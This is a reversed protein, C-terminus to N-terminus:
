HGSILRGTHPNIAIFEGHQELYGERTNPDSYDGSPLPKLEKYIFAVLVRVGLEGPVVGAADWIAQDPTGTFLICDTDIMPAAPGGGVGPVVSALSGGPGFLVSFSTFAPTATGAPYNSLNAFHKGDATTYTASVAGLGVGRPMARPAYDPVPVFRHGLMLPIAPYIHQWDQYVRWEPLHGRIPEYTLLSVWCKEDPGIQFHVLAYSHRKVAYSRADGLLAGVVFRAQGTSARLFLPIISPLTIAMALGIIGLVVLLETLTFASSKRFTRM